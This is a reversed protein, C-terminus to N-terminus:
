TAAPAQLGAQRFVEKNYYLGGVHVSAPILLTKGGFTFAELASPYYSAMWKKDAALFPRYDLLLNDKGFQQGLSTVMYSIDPPNGSAMEITLKTRANASELGEHEITVNPFDQQFQKYVAAYMPTVPDASTFYTLLRLTIKEDSPAGALAPSGLALLGIAVGLAVLVTKSKMVAGGTLNNAVRFGYFKAGRVTLAVSAIRRGEGAVPGQSYWNGIRM